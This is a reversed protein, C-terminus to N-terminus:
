PPLQHQSEARTLHGAPLLTESDPDVGHGQSKTGQEQQSRDGTLNIEQKNVIGTLLRTQQPPQIEHSNKVCIGVGNTM